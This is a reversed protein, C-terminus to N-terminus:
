GAVPGAVDLNLIEEDAVVNIGSLDHNLIELSTCHHCVNERLGVMACRKM